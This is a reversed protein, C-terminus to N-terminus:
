GPTLLIRRRQGVNFRASLVSDSAVSQNLLRRFTRWSSVNHVRVAHQFRRIEHVTCSRRATQLLGNRELLRLNEPHILTILSVIKDITEQLHHTADSETRVGYRKWAPEHHFVRNRFDRVNTVMDRARTLTVRAQNSPWPGAFVKGLCSPWILGNGMFEDSLLFGWTSFDTKAIVGAHSPVIRGRAGYRNRKELVYKNAAKSFNERVREVAIPPMAGPAFSRYKLKNGAWWFSGLAQQLAHDIANRLTVEAIGMVPYLAGCVHANWLYAGMLEIDDQPLFVERYSELRENSILDDILIPHYKLTAPM